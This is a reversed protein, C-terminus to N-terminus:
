VDLLDEGKCSVFSHGFLLEALQEKDLGIQLCIGEAQVSLWFKNSDLRKQIILDFDKVM